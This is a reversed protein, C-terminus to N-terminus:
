CAVAIIRNVRSVPSQKFAAQETKDRSTSPSITDFTADFVLSAKPITSKISESKSFAFLAQKVKKM